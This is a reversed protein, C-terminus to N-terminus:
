RNTYQSGKYGILQNAKYYYLGRIEQRGLYEEASHYGSIRKEGYLTWLVTYNNENLYQLFDEKKVLLCSLSKDYVSPDLCILENQRNLFYGDKDSHKMNMGKYLIGSPIYIRFADEKSCDYPEEWLFSLIPDIVKITQKGIKVNRPKESVLSNYGPSWYYERFFLEYIDRVGPFESLAKSNKKFAEELLKFDANSVIYSRIDYILEKHPINWKDLAPDTPEEWSPFLLLNFWEEGSSKNIQVINKIDPLDSEDNLWDLNKPEWNDYKVNFWWNLTTSHYREENTEKILTTPDIDRVYPEWAGDYPVLEQKSWSWPDRMKFSDSVRALIEYFAIWQYKKGIREIKHGSRVNRLHEFSRHDFEGHKEVDYGLEFIRKVAWNSLKNPDIQPWNHLGSQFVYRGFDGYLAMKRGYETTMSRLITNQSWYYDKFDKSSYNFEYKDITKLSPFRKPFYSKYPPLYRNDVKPNLGLYISYDILNRAYDRLLIHPYVEESTFITTFIYEALEKIGEKTNARLSCGYAVSYLRELVYPDNVTEFDKLLMTLIEIRNQLLCILAKTAYDRLYRNSSTLFWSITKSLLRISVDDVYSKDEFSWSWDIIRQVARSYIYSENIYISWWGDREGMKFRILHKHLFDANFLHNPNSTVLLITELFKEYTGKYRNVQKNIYPMLKETITNTNRWILSEVFSEVVPYFSKSFPLLEYFEKSTKEPLQISFAELLGKNRYCYGESQFLNNLYKGKYFSKKPNDIDIYNTILYDAYLHDKFRDYNFYIVETHKSGEWRLNKTLLGESILEDTLMKDVVWPKKVKEVTVCAEEYTLYDRNNDILSKIIEDVAKRVLNVSEDYNLRDPTSIKSNIANLYFAIIATIGSHGEPIKHLGAKKLGDCFLKLFLPNQFEPHLLPITPQEIAYNEFFYKSAEYEVEEFGTHTLRQAQANKYISEPIILKEYSTRISLVLGIWKYKEFSKIFSILNKKWIYKGEGENIADIFILVRSGISQAKANLAGLFEAENCSLRLINRLLQTWLLDRNTFHQGLLLVTPKNEDIRKNAIDALLHSKGVGADGTLILVPKNAILVSIDNILYKFDWIANSFKRLRYKEDSYKEPKYSYRTKEKNQNSEKNEEEELNEFQNNCEEIITLLTECELSIKSINILLKENFNIEDYLALLRIYNNGLRERNPKLLDHTLNNIAANSTRKVEIFKEDIEKELYEDHAIGNIKKAIDLKFNLEPTYREDLDGISKELKDRFWEESFEEKGFWYYRRGAHKELSLRHLLESSGWYEFEIKRGESKAFQKWQRVNLDWKQKFHKKKPIRPDQRDLPLCIFYRKLNSHTRLATKFSKDLQKWQSLGVSDFFKAQWGYESGDNLVWYSEVGGDPAGVRIFEKGGKIDEERALQCVLEEFANYQSNNYSRIDKWNVDM